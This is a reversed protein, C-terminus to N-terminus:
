RDTVHWSRCDDMVAQPKVQEDKLSKTDGAPKSNRHWRLETVIM